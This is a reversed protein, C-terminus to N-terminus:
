KLAFKLINVVVAITICRTVVSSFEKWVFILVTMDHVTFHLITLIKSYNENINM